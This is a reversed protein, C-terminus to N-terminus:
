PKLCTSPGGSPTSASACSGPTPTWPPRHVTPPHVTWPALTSPPRDEQPPRALGHELAELRALVPQLAATLAAALDAQLPPVTSPGGEVTSRARRRLSPYTGGRPRPEILGRQQLRRARSQAATVTLGLQRAIAATEAGANWLEVFRTEAEAPTM